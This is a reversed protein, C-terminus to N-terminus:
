GATSGARVQFTRVQGADPHVVVRCKGLSTHTGGGPSKHRARTSLAGNGCDPGSFGCPRSVTAPVLKRSNSAASAPPPNTLLRALTTAQETIAEDSEQWLDPALKRHVTEPAPNPTSSREPSLHPGPTATDSPPRTLDLDGLRTSLLRGRAARVRWGSAKIGSGGVFTSSGICVTSMAAGATNVAPRACRGWRRPKVPRIQQPAPSWGLATGGVKGRM